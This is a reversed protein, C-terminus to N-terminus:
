GAQFRLWLKVCLLLGDLDTLHIGPHHIPHQVLLGSSVAQLAESWCVQTLTLM